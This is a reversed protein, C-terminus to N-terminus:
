AKIKAWSMRIAEDTPRDCMQWFRVCAESIAMLEAPPMKAMRAVLKKTDVEWKEDLGVSDAVNAWIMSASVGASGAFDTGNNADFIACWEPKTFAPMVDQVLVRYRTLIAAIRGSANDSEAMVEQADVALYISARRSQYAKPSKSKSM